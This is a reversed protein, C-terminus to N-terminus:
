VRITEFAVELQEHFARKNTLQRARWIEELYPIIEGLPPLEPQIVFVPADHGQLKTM